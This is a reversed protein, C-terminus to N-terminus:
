KAPSANADGHAKREETEPEKAVPLPAESDPKESEPLDVFDPGIRSLHNGAHQLLRSAYLGRLLAIARFQVLTSDLKGEKSRSLRTAKFTGNVIRGMDELLFMELRANPDNDTALKVAKLGESTKLYVHQFREAIKLIDMGCNIIQGRLALMPRIPHLQREWTDTRPPRPVLDCAPTVCIWAYLLEGEQTEPVFLTGTEVFKGASQTALFENLRHIIHWEESKACGPVKSKAWTLKAVADPADNLEPFSDEGFGAIDNLLSESHRALLRDFLGRLRDPREEEDGAVAHYLWGAQLNSDSLIRSESRFGGRAVAGRAYALLSLLYPPNWNELAETLADFVESGELLNSRTKSLFAVLLNDTHAWYRAAGPASTEVRRPGSAGVPSVGYKETLFNELAVEMWFGSDGPSIKKVKLEARLDSDKKWEREGRIFLDITAKSPDPTWELDQWQETQEKSLLSDLPKAGRLQAIVRRHVQELDKDATYVVVLRAHDSGALHGLLGLARSPDEGQLHYDLVVLDSQSIHSPISDALQAGDDIDCLYGRDRCAKWLAKARDYEKPPQPDVAGKAPPDVPQAAAALAADESVLPEIPTAQGTPVEVSKANPFAEAEEHMTLIASGLRDYPPFGDDVLIVTRISALYAKHIAQSKTLEPM